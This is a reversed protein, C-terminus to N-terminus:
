LVISYTLQRVFDITAAIGPSPRLSGRDETKREILLTTLEGATSSSNNCHKAAM